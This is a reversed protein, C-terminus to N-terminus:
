SIRSRWGDPDRSHHYLAIIVVTENRLRYYISYPFGPVIAQRIDDELIPFRDPTDAILAVMDRVAFAFRRALNLDVRAYRETSEDFEAQALPRFRAGRSM